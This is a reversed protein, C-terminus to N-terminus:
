DYRWNVDWRSSDYASVVITFSNINVIVDTDYEIRKSRIVIDSGRGIAGDRWGVEWLNKGARWTKRNPELWKVKLDRKILASYSQFRITLILMENAWSIRRSM